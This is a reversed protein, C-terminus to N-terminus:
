LGHFGQIVIIRTKFRTPKGDKYIKSRFSFRSTIVQGKDPADVWDFVDQDYLSITKEEM